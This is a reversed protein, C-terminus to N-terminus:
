RDAMGNGRGRRVRRNATYNSMPKMLQMRLPPAGKGFKKTDRGKLESPRGPL